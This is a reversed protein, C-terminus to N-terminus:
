RKSQPRSNDPEKLEFERAIKRSAKWVKEKPTMPVIKEIRVMPASGRFEFEVHWGLHRTHAAPSKMNSHQSQTGPSAPSESCKTSVESRSSSLM